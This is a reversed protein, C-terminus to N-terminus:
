TATGPPRFPNVLRAVHVSTVSARVCGPIPCFFFSAATTGREHSAASRGSTMACCRSSSAAAPSGVCNTRSM